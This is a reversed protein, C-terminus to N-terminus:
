IFNIKMCHIYSYLYLDLMVMLVFVSKKKQKQAKEATNHYSGKYLQTEQSLYRTVM